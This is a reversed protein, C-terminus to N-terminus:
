HLKVRMLHDDACMYLISQDSNFACNATAEGTDIRALPTGDPDFVWVGGPGTAFLIGNKNVKLGDPLGKHTNVLPTADYFVKGSLTDGAEDLAYAMWMALDPDSNSVYLTREDPSLAIGNPRSLADTILHVTGDMDRRYVGQIDIERAPDDAGRELGYPPDTFFIQGRSNVVLDNPSNFRKGDWTDAITIFTPQPERLSSEMRAIRRDGHQCLLLYHGDHSLALGNSGPEGSRDETGTYGSPRLYEKAGGVETWSYITNAPVDSFLLLQQDGIWLPGETWQYGSALTEIEADPRIIEAVRQTDSVLIEIKRPDAQAVEHDEAESGADTKCAIVGLVIALMFYITICPVVKSHEMRWYMM